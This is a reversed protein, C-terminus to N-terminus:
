MMMLPIFFVFMFCVMFICFGACAFKQNQVMDREMESGCEMCCQLVNYHVSHKGRIMQQKEYKHLQCFRRKCGARLTGRCCAQPWMCYSTGVNQCGNEYCQLDLNNTLAFQPPM